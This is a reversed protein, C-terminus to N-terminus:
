TISHEIPRTTFIRFQQQSAMKGAKLFVVSSGLLSTNKPGNMLLQQV